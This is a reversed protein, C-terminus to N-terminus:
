ERNWNGRDSYYGWLGNNKSAFTTGRGIASIYIDTRNGTKRAYIAGIAYGSFAADANDGLNTWDGLSSGNVKLKGVGNYKTGVYLWGDFACLATIDSTGVGVAAAVV